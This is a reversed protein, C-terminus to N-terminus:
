IEVRPMFPMKGTHLGHWKAFERKRMRFGLRLFMRAFLECRRLMFALGRCWISGRPDVPRGDRLVSEVRGVVDSLGVPEDLDSHADGRAVIQDKTRHILRHVVLGGNRRFMILSDPLLESPQCPRVIVMDGPWLTPVMSTGYVRIQVKGSSRAVDAALDCCAEHLQSGEIM